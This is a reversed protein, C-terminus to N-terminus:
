SRLQQATAIVCPTFSACGRALFKTGCDKKGSRRGLMSILGDQLWYRSRLHLRILRIKGKPYDYDQEDNREHHQKRARSLPHRRLVDGEALKQVLNLLAMDALDRDCAIFDSTM